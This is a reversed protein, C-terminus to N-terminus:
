PSYLEDIFCVLVVRMGRTVPQAGHMLQGCHLLCDGQAGSVVTSADLTGRRRLKSELSLGGSGREGEGGGTVGGDGDDVGVGTGGGGEGGEDTHWGWETVGDLPEAFCTGGGDFGEPGDRPSLLVNCSLLTSRPTALPSATLPQLPQM